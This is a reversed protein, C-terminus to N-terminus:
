LSDTLVHRDGVGHLQLDSLLPTEEELDTAKASRTVRNCSNLTPLTM